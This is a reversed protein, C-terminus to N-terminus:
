KEGESTDELKKGGNKYDVYMVLALSPLFYQFAVIIVNGEMFYTWSLIFMAISLFIRTYKDVKSTVAMTIKVALLGVVLLGIFSGIKIFSYEIHL